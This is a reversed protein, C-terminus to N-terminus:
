GEPEGIAPRETGIWVVSDNAISSESMAVAALIGCAIWLKRMFLRRRKLLLCTWFGFEASKDNQAYRLSAFFRATTCLNKPRWAERLIVPAPESVAELLKQSNNLMAAGESCQGRM